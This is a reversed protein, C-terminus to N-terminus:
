LTNKPMKLVGKKEMVKKLYDISEKGKVIKLYLESSNNIDEPDVPKEYKFNLPKPDHLTTSLYEYGQSSREKDVV